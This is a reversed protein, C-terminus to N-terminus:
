GNVSFRDIERMCYEDFAIIARSFRRQHSPFFINEVNRTGRRQVRKFCCNFYFRTSIFYVTQSKNQRVTICLPIISTEFMRSPIIIQFLIEIM